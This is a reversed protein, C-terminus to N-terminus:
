SPESGGKSIDVGALGGWQWGRGDRTHPPLLFPLTVGFVGGPATDPEPRM